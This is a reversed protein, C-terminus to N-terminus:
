FGTQEDDSNEFAKNTKGDTKADYPNEVGTKASKRCVCLSVRTVTFCIVPRVHYFYEDLSVEQARQYWLHHPLHGSAGCSGHGSWIGGAM